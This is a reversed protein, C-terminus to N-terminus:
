PKTVLRSRPTPSTVRTSANKVVVRRKTPEADTVVEDSDRAVTRTANQSVGSGISPNKRRNSSPLHHANADPEPQLVSEPKPATRPAEAPARQPNQAPTPGHHPKAQITEHTGTDHSMPEAHHGCSTCNGSHVDVPEGCSTCGCDLAYYRYGWLEKLKSLLPRCSGCENGCGGVYEGGCGCPDCVPPENIQEDWYIEGCGSSCNTRSIHNAIKNRIGGHLLPGSEGVGCTGCGCGMPGVSCCGVHMALMAVGLLWMCYVSKMKLRGRGKSETNSSRTSRVDDGNTDAQMISVILLDEWSNNAVM